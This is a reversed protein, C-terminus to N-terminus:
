DWVWASLNKGKIRIQRGDELDIAIEYIEVHQSLHMGSIFAREVKQEKMSELITDMDSM